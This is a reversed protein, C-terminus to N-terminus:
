RQTNEAPFNKCLARALPVDFGWGPPGTILVNWSEGCPTGLAWFSALLGWYCFTSSHALFPQYNQRFHRSGRWKQTRKCATFKCCPVSSKVEGRFSPVSLIKEGLFDSLKPQTQVRSSPYWLGAREVRSWPLRKDTCYRCYTFVKHPPILKVLVSTYLIQLLHVSLGGIYAVYCIMYKCSVPTVQILVWKAGGLLCTYSLSHQPRSRCVFDPCFVFGFRPLFHYCIKSELRSM